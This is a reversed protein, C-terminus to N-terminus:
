VIYNKSISTWIPLSPLSIVCTSPSPSHFILVSLAFLLIYSQFPTNFRISFIHIHSNFHTLSFSSCVHCPFPFLSSSLSTVDPFLFPLSLAIASPSVSPWRSSPLFSHLHCLHFIFLPSLFVFPSFHLPFLYPLSLTNFSFIFPIIPFISLLQSLFSSLRFCPYNNIM